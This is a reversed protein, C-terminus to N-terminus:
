LGRRKHQVGNLERVILLEHLHRSRAAQFGTQAARLKVVPRERLRLPQQGQPPWLWNCLLFRPRDDRKRSLERKRIKAGGSLPSCIPTHLQQAPRSRAETVAM